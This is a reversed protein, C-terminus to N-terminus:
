IHANTCLLINYITSFESDNLGHSSYCNKQDIFTKAMINKPKFIYISNNHQTITYLYEIIFIENLIKSSFM